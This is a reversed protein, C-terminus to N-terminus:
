KGGDVGFDQLITGSECSLVAKSLLHDNKRSVVVARANDLAAQVDLLDVLQSLSNEYRVQVLRRGEEATALSAQALELNKEAEEVGRYAEYVKFDVMKKLGDLYERSEAIRHRAKMKEYQRKSGDYLRWRAVAAVQWSEGESGFPAEHDNLQYTGGVGLTPLFGAGALELSKEANEHRAEMAQVDQRRGAAESYYPLERLAIEIHQPDADLPETLGLLLGLGKRAVDHNKRSSVLQQEAETMATKARLIDSYLGLGNKHRLEAIRAHEAADEVGKEAVAVFDRSTLVGLYAKVVELAIEERSRRYQLDMAEAQKGAMEEGIRAERVFIPQEISFSTQFDQISDPNNLSNIAFDTAAFREQNLKAMFAYTPNATRMYREEIMVSPRMGSGAIGIDAKSAEVENMRARLLHNGQFATLIAERLNVVKVENCLALSAAFSMWWIMVLFFGAKMTQKM